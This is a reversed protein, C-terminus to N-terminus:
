DSASPDFIQGSILGSIQEIKGSWHRLTVSCRNFMDVAIEQKESWGTHGPYEKHLVVETIGAQIIGRACDTCPMWPLYIRCGSLSTGVRAANYIANRESHEILEYKLPREHHHPEDEFGRVFSNYGTARVVNDQSVIVSGVTTSQDKSRTAVLYAMTMFYQDWDRNTM